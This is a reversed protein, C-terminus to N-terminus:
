GSASARERKRGSSSLARSQITMPKTAERPHFANRWGKRKRTMVGKRAVRVGARHATMAPTPSATHAAMPM